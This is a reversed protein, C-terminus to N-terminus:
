FRFSLNIGLPSPVIAYGRPSLQFFLDGNRFFVHGNVLVRRCEVPLQEFYVYRPAEVVCYGIGRRYKYFHNGYYYYDDRDHHFVVPNRDFRHYVRGYRPHDFFDPHGHRSQYSYQPRYEHRDDHNKEYRRDYGRENRENWDKRATREDNRESERYEKRDHDKWKKGDNHRNQASADITSVILLMSITVVPFYKRLNDISKM